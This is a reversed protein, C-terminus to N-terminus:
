PADGGNRMRQVRALGQEVSETWAPGFGGPGMGPMGPRPRRPNLLGAYFRVASLYVRCTAVEPVERAGGARELADEALAEILDERASGYGAAFEPREHQWRRVTDRAPMGPDRLLRHLPSGDSLSRCIKEGLEPTYTTPREQMNADEKTQKVVKRAALRLMAARYSASCGPSLGLLKRKRTITERPRRMAHAIEIDISGARVLRRLRASEDASWLKGRAM